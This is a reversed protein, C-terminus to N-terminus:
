RTQAFTRSYWHAAVTTMQSEERTLFPSVVFSVFNCSPLVTFRATIIEAHTRPASFKNGKFPQISAALARLQLPKRVPQLLRAHRDRDRPFRAAGRCALFDPLQQQVRASTAEIGHGLQREHERRARLVNTFDNKGRQIRSVDHKAVPEGIGTLSILAASTLQAAFYDKFEM